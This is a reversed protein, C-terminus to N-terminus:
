LLLEPHNQIAWNRIRKLSNLSKSNKNEKEIENIKKLSYITCHFNYQGDQLECIIELGMLRDKRKEYTYKM